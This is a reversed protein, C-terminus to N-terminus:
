HPLYERVVPYMTQIFETATQNAQDYNSQVVPVVVRVIATDTRNYHISDAVAMIKAKYESAIVRDRSEYWYFVVSRADDKQVVYHNVSIPKGGPIDITSIQSELQTWGSGPLCNKPSHPAKGNRQSKFAAIYLNAPLPDGPRTYNRSLLDDAKLVERTEQDIELEQQMTWPGVLTPFNSLPPSAPVNERRSLAYLFVAQMVLVLTLIRGTRSNFLPSLPSTAAM